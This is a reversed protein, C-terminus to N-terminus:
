AAPVARRVPREGRRGCGGLHRRRIRRVTGPRVARPPDGRGVGATDLVQTGVMETRYDLYLGPDREYPRSTMSSFCCGGGCCPSEFISSSYDTILIDTVALLENLDLQQDVIVDFGGTPSWGATSTPIRRSCSCTPRPCRPVCAPSTWAPARASAGAEAASRRRTSCSGGGPSSPIRPWSGPGRRPWPRTTSSSTPGHRASRSCGSWRRECRARGHRARPRARPSSGTTTGTSSADAGARGAAPDRRARVAQARGRRALGPRGRDGSSAPRRPGAPLRQRRRRPPVHPAPVHGPGPAHRLRAQRDARLQVARAGPCRRAGAPAPAPRSPHAAPQRRAEVHSGNCPCRPRSPGAAALLPLRPPAPGGGLARVRAADRRASPRRRPRPRPSERPPARRAGPGHPRVPHLRLTAVAVDRAPLLGIPSEGPFATRRM